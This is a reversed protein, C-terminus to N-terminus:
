MQIFGQGLLHFIDGGLWRAFGANTLDFTALLMLRKHASPLRRSLVGAIVLTTFILIDGVQIALFGPDADPTHLAAKEMIWATVPRVVAMAAAWAVLILGLTRHIGYRKFRILLVQTTLLIMWGVFLFAHLHVILPYHLGSKAVHRQIDIGFGMFIGIWSLIVLALYVNRDWAHDRDFTAAM